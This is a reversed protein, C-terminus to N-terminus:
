DEKFFHTLHTENCHKWISLTYQTHKITFTNDDEEIKYFNGLDVYQHNLSISFSDEKDNITINHWAESKLLTEKLHQLQKLKQKHTEKMEKVEM